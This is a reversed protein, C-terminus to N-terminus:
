HYSVNLQLAGHVVGRVPPLDKINELVSALATRSGVDCAIARVCVDTGEHQKMMKQVDSGSSGSRGLLVINLAGNEIMWSALNLGIGRTGGTILYTANPNMSVQTPRLATEAVVRENAGLNVVIKGINDGSKFKRLAASFESLALVTLPKIPVAVRRQILEVVKSFVDEMERPRYKFLEPIDISIFTANSHFPRMPLYSNEFADKKGIEIFRGFKACLAWTEVLDKGSLSNVVVDVGRGSTQAIIKDRFGSGHSSFIQSEPIGFTDHLFERKAQTGATAFIRAGVHQALVICAQGIAGAAAHILVTEDKTLRGNRLLALVAISYALPLSTAEMTTIGEPVKAALWFPMKKFTSFAGGNPALFFVVDGEKLSTVRSGKKVVKGAGDLGPPAWPISGLILNLDRYSVGAAEVKVVIDDDGVPQQNGDTRRFYISDASGAADVTMELARDGAWINQVKRFSLGREVAFQEKVEKLLRMRPLHISDEHWVFDQDQTRTVEPDRLLKSLQVIASVGQPTCPVDEFTLLYKPENEIRLTRIMGKISKSEPPGGQPIVWLLAKNRLLLTKLGDFVEVSVHQLLCDRPSDIFVYFPNDDPDIEAFPRLETPCGICQSISDAVTQAFEVEDDDMFPGCITITQNHEQKGIRTSCIVSATAERESNANDHLSVDVGSFGTDLLLRNWVPVPMLPGEAPDRYEDEAYWWGPLLFFPLLLPVHRSAELLFLKGGPALLKRVHSMTVIMNKTAHLVNAAIIVDFNEVDFGQEVPDQSIDLKQFTIRQSWRALKTRANEFFGSSIDTFTFNLFSPDKGDHSLAELVPLTTGATGGGIELIRLNPELDSLNAILAGMMRSLHANTVDAEYYRTLRGDALMVELPEMKERLIPVLQEGILSLLEGQANFSRVEELLVAPGNEFHIDYSPLNKDAWNIFRNLHFPLKSRDDHTTEKLAQDIYYCAAKNMMAARMANAETSEWAPTIKTLEALPLFDFRSLKVWAWNDPLQSAPDLNDETSGISRFAVSEWEAVPSLSGDHGRAFVAVGISMRGGKTDYDLLRTVVDFRQQPVAPIRNSIRFRNIYNPMQAPRKGDETVQLPGGGQLFGDLTPPDAAAPSGYPGSLKPSDGLDRLRHELVTYGNGEFFRTTNRFAPGYRTARVGAYEYAYAVDREILNTTDVLPLSKSFTLSDTTMETMEPEIQGYAHILWGEAEAWTSIEFSWTTTSVSGTGTTAPRLKTVMDVVQEEQIELRRVAHFDSVLFAAAPTSMTRRAAEIACSIYGTMPLVVVGAVNHDRIWPMEDLTFVQRYTREKGGNSHVRRGLLSNYSEGPYLTEHTARARIEYSMSKDWAYAPLGTMVHASHMDTENVSGLEVPAGMTFLTGALSLLSERGDIGRALSSLYNFSPSKRQGSRQHELIQKIPNKLASHPGVEIVLNHRGKGAVTNGDKQSAVTQMADLFRVPQVLNDVWYSENITAPDAIRGTVSSVFVSSSFDEKKVSFVDDDCYPKIAALYFAAVENMYRSHYPLQVKLRRAFLGTEDVVKHINEIASEDGSITVSGQSNIAAVTAYGQAHNEILIVAEEYGVGLALMAGKRSQQRTLAAAAQGRFYAIALATRFSILGAAFAAAIEGSSHGLVKAPVVRWSRLLMVLALQVATCAPQSIEADDVRSDPAPKALEETLSWPAGMKKLHAEAEDIATTFASYRQLGSGM